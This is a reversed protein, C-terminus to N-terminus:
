PKVCDAVAFECNSLVGTKRLQKDLTKVLDNYDLSKGPDAGAVRKGNNTNYIAIENREAIAEYGFALMGSNLIRYAEFPIQVPSKIGDCYRNQPYIVHTCSVDTKESGHTETDSMESAPVEDSPKGAEPTRSPAGNKNLGPTSAVFCPKFYEVIRQGLREESDRGPRIYVFGGFEDTYMTNLRTDVFSFAVSTGNECKIGCQGEALMFNEGQLIKVVPDHVYRVNTEGEDSISDAKRKVIACPGEAASDHVTVSGDDLRVWRGDPRGSVYYGSRGPACGSFEYPPRVPLRAYGTNYGTNWQSFYFQIDNAEATASLTTLLAAATLAKKMM